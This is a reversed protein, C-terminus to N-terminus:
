DLRSFDLDVLIEKVDVDEDRCFNRIQDWMEPIGEAV